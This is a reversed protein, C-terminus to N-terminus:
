RGLVFQVGGWRSGTARSTEDVGPIKIGNANTSISVKFVRQVIEGMDYIRTLVSQAFDVQVPFGGASPDTEGLGLPARLRVDMGGPNFAAKRIAVLQEGFSRFKTPDDNAGATGGGSGAPRALAMARKQAAEMNSIKSEIDEIEREKVKFAKPDGALSKLEDVATGLAQRLSLLTSM